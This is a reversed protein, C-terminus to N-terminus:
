NTHLVAYQNSTPRCIRSVHQAQAAYTDRPVAWPRQSIPRLPRWWRHLEAVGVARQFDNLAGFHRCRESCVRWHHPANQCVNYCFVVGHRTATLGSFRGAADWAQQVACRGNEQLGNCHNSSVASSCCAKHPAGCQGKKVRWNAARQANLLHRNLNCPPFSNFGPWRASLCLCLGGCVM